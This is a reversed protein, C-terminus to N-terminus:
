ILHKGEISFLTANRSRRVYSIARRINETSKETVNLSSVIDLSPM